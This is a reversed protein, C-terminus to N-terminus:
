SRRGNVIEKIFKKHGVFFAPPELNLQNIIDSEVTDRYYENYQKKIKDNDFWNLGYLIPIYNASQFLNWSGKVDDSLPLRDKWMKLYSELRPTLNLNYKIHKWFPTDERKTLYHAQVYDVINDFINNVEQNCTEQDYSPLYNVFCFMQQIVSGISTAELPEVFSQSLGVAYCNKHWAKDLRGPDFKFEKLINLSQGYVEEMERQAEDRDIFKDCYVYGNGTKTQTPITWSWGANRATAKTYKNYEEMEDTAFSIASNLPLYESYSVWPIEYVQNLLLKAFGSCDIFFDADYTNSESIVNKLNENEHFNVGILNDYIIEIERNSCLNHLYENLSFTDFQFQFHPSDNLDNFNSLGLVNKDSLDSYLNEGQSILHAYVAYYSGYSNAYPEEISHMFDKEAWNEFYVGSKFTANCYILADLLNVGIFNCFNSWHETSSEGVGVIGIDPSEVISIQLHPFQKKLILASICGSTGGGVIVIKNVNM